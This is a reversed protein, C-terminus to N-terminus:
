DCYMIREMYMYPMQCHSCRYTYRTGIHCHHQDCYEEERSKEVLIGHGCQACKTTESPRNSLSDPMKGWNGEGKIIKEATQEDVHERDMIHQVIDERDVDEILEVDKRLAELDRSSLRAHDTLNYRKALSRRFPFTLVITGSADGDNNGRITVTTNTPNEVSYLTTNEM